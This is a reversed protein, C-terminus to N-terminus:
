LGMVIKPIVELELQVKTGGGCIVCVGKYDPNKTPKGMTRKDPYSSYFNKFPIKIKKVWFRKLTDLNQDARYCIYCHLLKRDIGYCRELLRLYLEIIEPDSSGLQLGSHSRWKSGEGLYLFALALKLSDPNGGIRKGLDWASREISDLFIKRLEKNKKGAALQARKLSSEKKEKIIKQAEESLDLGHLWYSLTGKSHIKLLSTIENYSKGSRRLEIAALKLKSKM